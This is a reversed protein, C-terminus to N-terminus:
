EEHKDDEELIINALQAVLPNIFLKNRLLYVFFGIVMYVGSVIIAAVYYPGLYQHYWFIFGLSLFTLIFLFLIFFVVSIIFFTGISALKETLLLKLLDIRLQIYDKVSGNLETFNESIKQSEM